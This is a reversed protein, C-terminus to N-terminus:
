HISVTGDLSHFLDVVGDVPAADFPQHDSVIRDAFAGFSVIGIMGQQKQFAQKQLLPEADIGIGFQFGLDVVPDGEFFEQPNGHIFVGGIM